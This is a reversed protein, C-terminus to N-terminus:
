KGCVSLCFELIENKAAEKSVDNLYEHRVGDYLVKEVSKVGAKNLYFDYLKDVLKGYGGVPDAKGSILLIPKNKDINATVKKGYLRKFACFMSKYFGYSLVFDCEPNNAYADCEEKVSSVFTTGDKYNKNYSGFSLKAIFKAPNKSKGLLCNLKAVIRGAIVQMGKMYASGGVIFGDALDGYREIYAQTLFSGYSHGFLILKLNPHAKKYISSLEAIDSLTDFFMDGDSYGSCGDTKGHGRHDDAFVLFGNESMFEAFQEYRVTSEAMGHSIQLMAKPNECAWEKYHIVKGDKATFTKNEM